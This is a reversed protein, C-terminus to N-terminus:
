RWVARIKKGDGAAHRGTHGTPRTCVWNRWLGAESRGETALTSIADRWCAQRGPIGGPTCDMPLRKYELGVAGVSDWEGDMILRRM